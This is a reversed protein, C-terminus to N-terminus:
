HISKGHKILLFLIVADTEISNHITICIIYHVEFDDSNFETNTKKKKKSERQTVVM